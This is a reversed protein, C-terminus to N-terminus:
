KAFQKSTSPSSVLYSPGMSLLLYQALPQSHCVHARSENSPQAWVGSLTIMTTKVKADLAYAERKGGEGKRMGYENHCAMRSRRERKKEGGERRGREVENKWVCGFKSHKRPLPGSRRIGWGFPPSGSFPYLCEWSSFSVTPFSLDSCRTLQGATQPGSFPSLLRTTTLM